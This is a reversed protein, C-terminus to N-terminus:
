QLQPKVTAPAESNSPSFFFPSHYASRAAALSPAPAAHLTIRQRDAGDGHHLREMNDQVAGAACVGEAVRPPLLEHSCPHAATCLACDTRVSLCIPTVCVCLYVSGGEGDPVLM